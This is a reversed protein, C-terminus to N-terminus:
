RGRRGARFIAGANTHRHVLINENYGVIYCPIKMAVGQQRMTYFFISATHDARDRLRIGAPGLTSNTM